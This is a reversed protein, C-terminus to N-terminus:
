RDVEPESRPRMQTVAFVRYFFPTGCNSCRGGVSIGKVIRGLGLPQIDATHEADFDGNGLAHEDGFEITGSIEASCSLCNKAVVFIVVTM